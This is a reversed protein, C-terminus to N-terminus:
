KQQNIIITESEVKHDFHNEMKNQMFNFQKIEEM